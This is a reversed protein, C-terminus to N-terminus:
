LKNAYKCPLQWIQLVLIHRLCLDVVYRRVQSLLYAQKHIETQKNTQRHSRVPYRLQYCEWSARQSGLTLPEFGTSPVCHEAKERHETKLKAVPGQGIKSLVYFWKLNELNKCTM